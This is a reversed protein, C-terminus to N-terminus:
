CFTPPRSFLEYIRLPSTVGATPPYSAHCATVATLRPTSKKAPAEAQHAEFHSSADYTVHAPAAALRIEKSSLVAVGQESAAADPKNLAYYGFSLLYAVVTVIYPLHTSFLGFEFMRATKHPQLTVYKIPSSCPSAQCIWAVRRYALV